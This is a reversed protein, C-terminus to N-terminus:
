LKLLRANTHFDSFAGSFTGSANEDGGEGERSSASETEAEV